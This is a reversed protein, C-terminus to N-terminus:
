RVAHSAQLASRPMFEPTNGDVRRVLAASHAIAEEVVRNHVGADREAGAM